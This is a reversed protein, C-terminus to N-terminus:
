ASAHNQTVSSCAVYDELLTSHHFIHSLKDLKRSRPAPGLLLSFLSLVMRNGANPSSPDSALGIIKKQLSSARARPRTQLPLDEEATARYWSRTSIICLLISLM